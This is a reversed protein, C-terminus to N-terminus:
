IKWGRAQDFKSKRSGRGKLNRTEWWNSNKRSRAGKPNEIGEGMQNEQGSAAEDTQIKRGGLRKARNYKGAGEDM